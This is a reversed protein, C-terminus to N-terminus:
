RAPGVEPLRRRSRNTTLAAAAPHAGDGEGVSVVLTYRGATLKRLAHLRVDTRTSTAARSGTAYLKHARSLRLRLGEGGDSAFAFDIPTGSGRPLAWETVAIGDYRGIRMNTDDVWWLEGAANTHMASPEADGVDIPTPAGASSLRVLGNVGGVYVGGDPASTIDTPNFEAPLDIPDDLESDCTTTPAVRLVQNATTDAYRVAGDSARTVAVPHPLGSANSIVTGAADICDLEGSESEVVWMRNSSAVLDAPSGGVATTLTVPGTGPATHGVRGNVSDVFWLNGDSPGQTLVTPKTAGGTIAVGPWQVGGLTVQGVAGTGNLTVSLPGTGAQFIGTPASNPLADWEYFTFAHASAPLALVGLSALVPLLRRM